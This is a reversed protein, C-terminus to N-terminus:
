GGRRYYWKAPNEEIYKVIEWYDQEGRIVHEYFSRQWLSEGLEKTILTKWSRITTEINRKTPASSWMPGEVANTASVRLIMHVHDPMIVYRDIGPITRTYQDVLIGVKSLKIYPRIHDDAGVNPTPGTHDDAGVNPTPGTHDDAGVVTGLIPNREKTCITVFYAGPTDYSYEPLRLPKRHSQEM